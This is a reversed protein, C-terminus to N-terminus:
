GLIRQVVGQMFSREALALEAFRFLSLSRDLNQEPSNVKYYVDGMLYDTLARLGHLFPMYAVSNAIEKKEEETMFGPHQGLGEIFATFHEKSFSINELAQEDEAATNVVTRLADGLDYHLYGPMLTDLDILCLPEKEDKSFLMNNLKTDNHCLRVPLEDSNYEQLIAATHTIFGLLPKIKALREEKAQQLAEEFQRYRHQLSHFDPIVVHYESPDATQLLSHFKGVLWGAREAIKLEPPLDYAESGPIYSLLRWYNEHHDRFLLEDGLTRYLALAHYDTDSLLPLAREINQMLQLPEPFVERNVQQLIFQKGDQDTLLFTTNILGQSVPKVSIAPCDSFKSFIEQIGPKDM